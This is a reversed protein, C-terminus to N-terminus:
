LKVSWSEDIKIVQMLSANENESTLEIITHWGWPAGLYRGYALFLSKGIIWEPIKPTIMGFAFKVIRPEDFDHNKLINNVSGFPRVCVYGINFGEAM